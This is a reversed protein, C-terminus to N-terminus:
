VHARGIQARKPAFQNQAECVDLLDKCRQVFADIHAFISGDDFTWARDAPGAAAIAARTANYATKWADGAKISDKLTSISSAVNGDLIDAINIEACCRNIIENSVKRLLSTIREPTNYFRSINWIMRIYHLLKPLIPAIAAPTAKVLAQCPTELSLLFKLNDEAAM